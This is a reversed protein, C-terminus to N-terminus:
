KCIKLNLAQCEKFLEKAESQIWQEQRPEHLEKIMKFIRIIRARHYWFLYGQIVIAVYAIGANFLFLRDAPIVDINFFTNYTFDYILFSGTIYYFLRRITHGFTLSTGLVDFGTIFLPIRM